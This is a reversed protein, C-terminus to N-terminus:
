ACRSLHSNLKVPIGDPNSAAISPPTQRWPLFSATTRAPHVSPAAPRISSEHATPHAPPAPPPTSPTSSHNPHANSRAPPIKSASNFQIIVPYEFSSACSSQIQFDSHPPAKLCYVNRLQFGDRTPRRCGSRQGASNDWFPRKAIPRLLWDGFSVSSGQLEPPSRNCHPLWDSDLRGFSSSERLFWVFLPCTRFNGPFIRSGTERESLPAVVMSRCCFAFSLYMAFRDM